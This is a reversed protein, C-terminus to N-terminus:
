APPRLLSGACVRQQDTAVPTVLVSPASADSAAPPLLLAGTVVVGLVAVGVIGTTVRTAIRVADRRAM